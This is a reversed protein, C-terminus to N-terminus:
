SEDKFGVLKILKRYLALEARIHDALERPTSGEPEYGVKAM